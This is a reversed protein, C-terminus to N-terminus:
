QRKRAASKKPVYGPPRQQRPKRPGTRKQGPKKVPKQPQAAAPKAAITAGLAVVGAAVSLGALLGLINLGTDGLDEPEGGGTSRPLLGDLVRDVEEMIQPEIEQAAPGLFPQAAMRNTGYEVYTAYEAEARVQIPAFAEKVESQEGLEAHISAMLHGTRVPALERAREALRVGGNQLVQQVRVFMEQPLTQLLRSIDGGNEIEVQLSM